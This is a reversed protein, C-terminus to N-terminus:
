NQERYLNGLWSLFQAEHQPCQPYNGVERLRKRTLRVLEGCEWCKTILKPKNM